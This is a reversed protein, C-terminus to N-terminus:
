IQLYNRGDNNICTTQPTDTNGGYIYIGYRATNKHVIDIMWHEPAFYKHFNNNYNEISFENFINDLMYKKTTLICQDSYLPSSFYNYHIGKITNHLLNSDFPHSLPPPHKDWIIYSNWPYGLNISVKCKDKSSILTGRIQKDADDLINEDFYYDNNNLIFNHIDNTNNHNIAMTSLRICKLLNNNIMDQIIKEINITKIYLFDHQLIYVYETNVFDLAYLLNGSLNHKLAGQNIIIKVNKYFVDNNIFLNLSTLYEFYRNDENIDQAIIVPNDFLNCHTIKLSKLLMVIMDISPHSIVYSSTIITTYSAMQITTM